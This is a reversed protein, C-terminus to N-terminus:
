LPLLVIINETRIIERKCYQCISHMYLNHLVGTEFGGNLEAFDLEEGYRESRVESSERM